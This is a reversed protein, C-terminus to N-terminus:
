RELHRQWASLALGALTSLVGLLGLLPLSSATKPLRAPTASTEGPTATPMESAAAMQTGGAPGSSALRAQVQKETMVKPPMTTIITATLKDGTHLQSVDVEQGDRMIKVGRKDLAGQSFNKFGEDTRVLVTSGTKQMVTGNKVEAVVPTVTTKTTVAATGKMGPKLEHVSMQQGDITFRFDEPVDIQRTGEPLRVVLLNGEVAVVEFNKSTSLPARSSLRLV